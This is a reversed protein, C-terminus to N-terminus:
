AALAATNKRKRRWGLLGLVGLGTAFLPLAAPLPTTACVEALSCGTSAPAFSTLAMSDSGALLVFETIGYPAGGIGFLFNFDGSTGGYTTGWPKDSTPQGVLEKTFDLVGGYTNMTVEGIDSLSFTGDGGGSTGSVTLSFSTIWGNLGAGGMSGNVAAEVQTLDFTILASAYAANPFYPGAAGSWTLDFTQYVDAHAGVSLVM